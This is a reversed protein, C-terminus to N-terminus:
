AMLVPVVFVALSLFGLGWIGLNSISFSADEESPEMRADERSNSETTCIINNRTSHAVKYRGRGYKPRLRLSRGCLTSCVRAQLKGCKPPKVPMSAPPLSLPIVGLARAHTVPKYAQM